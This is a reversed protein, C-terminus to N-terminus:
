HSPWKSDFIRSSRVVAHHPSVLASGDKGIVIFPDTGCPQMNISRGRKGGHTRRLWFVEPQIKLWRSLRRASFNSTAATSSSAKSGSPLENSGNVRGDPELMEIRRFTASSASPCSNSKMGISKGGFFSYMGRCLLNFRYALERGTFHNHKPPQKLVALLATKVRAGILSRWDHRQSSGGHNVEVLARWHGILSWKSLPAAGSKSGSPHGPKQM